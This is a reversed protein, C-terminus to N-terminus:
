GSTSRNAIRTADSSPRSSHPCITFPHPPSTRGSRDATRAVTRIQEYLATTEASPTLGLDEHLHEALIQYQALAATRQGDHALALMVQRYAEERLPDIEIQRRAYRSAQGYEKQEAAQLTLADLAWLVDQRLWERKLLAWEEFPPSEVLLGDLFDGRYLRAAAALEECCSRCQHLTPHPHRRANRLKEAFGALDLTHDSTANFGIEQRSALFFPAEGDNLPFANHLRSLSQRLNQRGTVQGSWLLEALSERSHARASEASLYALLALIKPSTIATLPEGAAVIQIPGLLSIQLHTM